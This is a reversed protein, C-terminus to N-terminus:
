LFVRLSIDEIADLPKVNAMLFVDDGTNAKKIDQEKMTSVDVGTSQLYNTQAQIDIAVNNKGEDLLGDTELTELYGQIASILLIKNDYSNAYKGLYNDEATMRIDRYMLDLIDVIKIKKFEAGKDQNTTVLSNVARAVKVKEGDHYLVFEGNDIATDIESKTLRPIDDVESLPHFTASITLPTGALLGAIRATYEATTYTAGDVEINDTTFNIISEHDAPENPLVAKSKIGKTDYMSKIANAVTSTDADAVEPYALYDFRLTEVVSLVDSLVESLPDYVYIGVKVPPNSGGIFAKNIYDQNETTLGAPIDAISTLEKYGLNATDELILLVIGREGRQVATIGTSTFEINIGPLGM